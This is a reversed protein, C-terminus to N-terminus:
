QTRESEDVQPIREKIWNVLNEPAAGTVECLDHGGGWVCTLDVQQAAGTSRLCWALNIGSTFPVVSQALGVQIRWQPAVKASGLLDTEGVLYNFANAMQGRREVTAGQANKELLEVGWDGPYTNQWGSLTAYTSQNHNLLEYIDRSFHLTAHDGTGFLQNEDTNCEIGDFATCPLSAPACAQIFSRLDAIRVVMDSPNYSLWQSTSNLTALYAAVSPVSIAPTSSVAEGTASQAVNAAIAQSDAGTAQGGPFGASTQISASLTAPFSAHEFFQTAAEELQSLLEQYYGGDSWLGDGTEVLSLERADDGSGSSLGLANVFPGYTGALDQSLASTWLDTARSESQSFRGYLWEYAGDQHTLDVVPTWALVGTLADSIPNGQSDWLAAGDEKLYLDFCPADGSVGMLSAIGAGAGLGMGYISQAGGPLAAANYRLFRVAAKLDTINWPMGGDFSGDGELQNKSEYGGSRGRCGAFVYICGADLYTKLGEYSYTSAAIQPGFDGCNVPLLIPASAQPIEAAQSDEKVHCEYTAGHAKGEFYAGPVYISLKQYLSAVPDLVYPLGLQYYVDHEEDYNWASGDLMLKDFAHVDVKPNEQDTSGEQAPAPAPNQACSALALGALGAAGCLFNRRTLAM